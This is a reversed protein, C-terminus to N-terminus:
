SRERAAKCWDSLEVSYWGHLDIPVEKGALKALRGIQEASFLRRETMSHLECYGIFEHDTM